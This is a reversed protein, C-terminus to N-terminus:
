YACDEDEVVATLFRTATEVRMVEREDGAFGAYRSGWALDCVVGIV